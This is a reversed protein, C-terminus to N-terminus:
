IKIQMDNLFAQKRGMALTSYSNTSLNACTPINWLKENIRYENMLGELYEFM